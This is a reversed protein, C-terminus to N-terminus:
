HRHRDEKIRQSEVNQDHNLRKQEAHTLRGGNAAMDRKEQNQIRTEQRELKAAERPGLQGQKIGQAIRNQQNAERTNIQNVRPHGPDVVGPGTTAPDTTQAAASGALLLGGVALLLLSNTIKGRM